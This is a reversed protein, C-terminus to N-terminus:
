AQLFSHVYKYCSQASTTQTLCFYVFVRGNCTDQLLLPHIRPMAGSFNFPAPSQCCVPGAHRDDGVSLCGIATYLRPNATHVLKTACTSSSDQGGDREAVAIDRVRGSRVTINSGVIPLLPRLHFQRCRPAAPRRCCPTHRTWADGKKKKSFEHRPRWPSQAPPQKTSRRRSPECRPVVGFDPRNKRTSCLFHNPPLMSRFRIKLQNFAYKVSV